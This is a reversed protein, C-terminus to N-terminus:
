WAPSSGEVDMDVAVVQQRVQGALRAFVLCPRAVVEEGEDIVAREARNAIAGHFRMEADLIM